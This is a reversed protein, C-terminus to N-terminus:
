LLNSGSKPNLPWMLREKCLDNRKLIDTSPEVEGYSSFLSFFFLSFHFFINFKFFSFFGALLWQFIQKKRPHLLILIFSYCQSLVLPHTCLTTKCQKESFSRYSEISFSFCKRTFKKKLWPYHFARLFTYFNSCWWISMQKNKEHLTSSIASCFLKPTIPIGCLILTYSSFRFLDKPKKIGKGAINNLFLVLLAGIKELLLIQQTRDVEWHHLRRKLRINFSLM